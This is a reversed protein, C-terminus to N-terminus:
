EWVEYRDGKEVYVRMFKGRQLFQVYTKGHIRYRRPTSINRYAETKDKFKFIIIM